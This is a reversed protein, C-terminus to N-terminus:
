VRGSNLVLFSNDEGGEELGEPENKSQFLSDDPSRLPKMAALLHATIQSEVRAFVGARTTLSQSVDALLAVREKTVQEHLRCLDCDTTVRVEISIVRAGCPPM